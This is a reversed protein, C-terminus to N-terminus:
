PKQCVFFVSKYEYSLMSRPNQTYSSRVGIREKLLVFGLDLVAEKIMDYSPEICGEDPLDAYHYLLPGLNIWYGGPKLIKHINDLYDLVNRGTDLFFCTVLADWENPETYVQLFDGAAMSFDAQSSMSSPDVDPFQVSKLQDSALVNNHYQNSWPHITYLDSGKCKNLIFQSAFLM